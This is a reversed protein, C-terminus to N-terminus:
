FCFGAEKGMDDKIGDCINVHSVIGVVEDQLGLM